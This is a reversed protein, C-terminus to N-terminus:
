DNRTFTITLDGGRNYEKIFGDIKSDIDENLNMTMKVGSRVDYTLKCPIEFNVENIEKSSM